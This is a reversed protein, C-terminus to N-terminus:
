EYEVPLYFVFSSVFDNIRQEIHEQVSAEDADM